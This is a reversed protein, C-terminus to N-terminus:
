PRCATGSCHALDPLSGSRATPLSRACRQAERRTQRLPGALGLDGVLGRLCTGGHEDEEESLLINGGKIDHHAVDKEHMFELGEAVDLIIQRVKGYDLDRRAGL